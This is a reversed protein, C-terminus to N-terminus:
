NWSLDTVDTMSMVFIPDSPECAVAPNSCRGVIRKVGRRPLNRIEFPFASSERPPASITGGPFEADIAGTEVDQIAFTLNGTVHRNSTNSMEAVFINDARRDLWLIKVGSAVRELVEQTVENVKPGGRWGPEWDLRDLYSLGDDFDESPQDQSRYYLWAARGALLLLRAAWGFFAASRGPGLLVAAFAGSGVRVLERRTM